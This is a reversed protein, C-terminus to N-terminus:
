APELDVTQTGTVTVQNEFEAITAKLTAKMSSKLQDLHDELPPTVADLWHPGSLYYELDDSPLVADIRFQVIHLRSNAALQVERAMTRATALPPSMVKLQPAAGTVMVM